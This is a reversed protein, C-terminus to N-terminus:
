PYLKMMTAKWATYGLIVSWALLGLIATNPDMYEYTNFTGYRICDSAYAMPLMYALPLIQRPIAHAPLLGGFFVMTFRLANLITVAQVPEYLFSVTEGILTFNISALIVGAVLYATNILPLVGTVYYLIIGAILAGVLGYIFGGLAKAITVLSSRIPAHMYVEFGGSLRDFGVSVQAMSSSSFLISVAILGPVTRWAGMGAGYYGLLLTLTLPFLLGWSIVPAKGYYQRFDKYLIASLRRVSLTCILGWM